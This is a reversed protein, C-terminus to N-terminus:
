IELPREIIEKEEDSSKREDIECTSQKTNNVFGGVDSIEFLPFYFLSFMLFKLHFPFM